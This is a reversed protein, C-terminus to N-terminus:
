RYKIYTSTKPKLQQKSAFTFYQLHCTEILTYVVGFKEVMKAFPFVQKM